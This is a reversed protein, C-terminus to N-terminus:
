INESRQESVIAHGNRVTTQGLMLFFHIILNCLKPVFEFSQSVRGKSISKAIYVDVVFENVIKLWFTQKFRNYKPNFEVHLFFGFSKRDSIHKRKSKETITKFTM